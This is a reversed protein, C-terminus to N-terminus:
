RSVANSLSKWNSGDLLFVVLTSMKCIEILLKLTLSRRWRFGLPNLQGSGVGAMEM